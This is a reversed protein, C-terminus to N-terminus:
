PVSLSFGEGKERVLRCSSAPQKSNLGRSSRTSVITESLERASARLGVLGVAVVPSASVPYSLGLPSKVQSSAGSM